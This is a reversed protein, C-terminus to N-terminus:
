IEWGGNVTKGDKVVIGAVHSRLWGNAFAVLVPMELGANPQRAPIVALGPEVHNREDHFPTPRNQALNSVPGEHGRGQAFRDGASPLVEAGHEGFDFGTWEGDHGLMEVADDTHTFPEIRRQTLDDSTELDGAGLGIEGKGRRELDIARCGKPKGTEIIGNEESLALKAGHNAIHLAIGRTAPGDHLVGAEELDTACDGEGFNQRACGRRWSVACPTRKARCVARPTRKARCDVCPARKARCVARPTRKARCVVCPTRKARRDVGDAIGKKEFRGVLHENLDRAAGAGDVNFVFDVLRQEEACAATDDDRAADRRAFLRDGAGHAFGVMREDHDHWAAEAGVELGAAGIKVGTRRAPQQHERGKRLDAFAVPEGAFATEADIGDGGCDAAFGGRCDVIAAALGIRGQPMLRM